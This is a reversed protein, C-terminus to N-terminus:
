RRRHNERKGRSRSADRPREERRDASRVREEQEDSDLAREERRSADRSREERRDTNRPRERRDADRPREERRDVDRSREQRRDADRPRDQRRDADRPREERRDADRSREERRDTGRPREDRRDEDRRARGHGRSRSDGSRDEKRDRRDRRRSRDRTRSREEEEKERRARDKEERRAADIAKERIGHQFKLAEEATMMKGSGSSVSTKRSLEQDRQELERDTYSKYTGKPASNKKGDRNSGSGRVGEVGIGCELPEEKHKERPKRKSDGCCHWVAGIKCGGRIEKLKMSVLKSPANSHALHVEMQEIDHEINNDPDRERIAFAEVLYKTATEDLKYLECMQVIEHHMKSKVVFRGSNLDRLIKVLTETPDESAELKGWVTMFDAEFTEQRNHLAADLSRAQSEDIHFHDALDAVDPDLKKELGAVKVSLDFRQKQQLLAGTLQAAQVQERLQYM